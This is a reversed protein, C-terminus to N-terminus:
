EHKINDYRNNDVISFYSEICKKVILERDHRLISINRANTALDQYFSLNSKYNSIIYLLEFVGNIPILLGTENHKVISSVGGANTAIVPTGIIQAECISNPSNEIYSTHIYLDSDKIIPIFEKPKLVGLCRIGIDQHDVSFKREFFAILKDNDDVGILSWCIRINTTKSLLLATKLIVDLGKYMTSSITTVLNVVGADKRVDKIAEEYFDERLIENIYFYKASPALLSVCSYDWETRGFVYRTHKLNNLERRGQKNIRIFRFFQNTGTLLSSLQKFGFLFDWKSVGPPFYSNIIPTIVGQIHIVVPTKTYQQISSFVGESGFVNIIDPNFDDIVKLMKPITEGESELAGRFNNIIAKMPNRRLRKRYLPYYTTNDKIVKDKDKTHFFSIALNIDDNEVLRSQLSEVWGCGHYQHKDLEYLSSTSTFWLVKLKVM